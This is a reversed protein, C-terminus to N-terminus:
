KEEERLLERVEMLIIGLANKGEIGYCKQCYCNGWFNDHWFNGEELEIHYLPSDPDVTALLKERLDTHQRFKLLVIETMIDVKVEEWNHRCEVRRGMRKAASPSPANRINEDEVGDKCKAAQFAHETTPWSTGRYIIKAPYFNSLFHLEDKFLM